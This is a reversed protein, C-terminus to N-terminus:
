TLLELKGGIQKYLIELTKLERNIYSRLFDNLIRDLEIIEAFNIKPIELNIYRTKFLYQILYILNLQSKYSPKCDSCVFELNHNQISASEVQSFEVGCTNCTNEKSLLGLLFLLRIKFFPLFHFFIIETNLTTIAKLLLEYSSQNENSEPLLTDLLECFYSLLLYGVYNSKVKEFRELISVEKINSIEDREHLYFDINILSGIESAIIPRSKSKKIGRLKFKSKLGSEALITLISDAEGVTKSAIVIGNEKRLSM